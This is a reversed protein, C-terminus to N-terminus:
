VRALFFGDVPLDIQWSFKLDADPNGRSIIHIDVGLIESENGMLLASTNMAVRHDHATAKPHRMSLGFCKRREGFRQEINRTLMDNLRCYGDYHSLAIKAVPYIAFLGTQFIKNVFSPDVPETALHEFAQFSGYFRGSFDSPIGHAIQKTPM